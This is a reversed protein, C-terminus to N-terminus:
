ARGAYIDYRHFKCELPGNYLTYRRSTRLGIHKLAEKNASLIWAVHGAYNQKLTDGIRGYLAFIDTPKMREGYPPNMMVVGGDTSPERAEFSTHSLRILDDLGARAINERANQLAEASADSGVVPGDWNIIRERAAEVLPEWLHSDYGPWRQFGFDRRILGPAINRAYLAAEILITGSGCMPDTFATKRDWGSLLVIGAALAENLPAEGTDLRYGRRHLSDGSSDLSIVCRDGTVYLHIRVTPADVDVSPRKGTRDRFQDVIADKVRLASYKSHTFFKSNVVSDVALTGAPTLYQSWDVQRVQDYFVQDKRARFRHIPKLVRLATRLELNARYMLSTDGQFEVARRQKVVKEAGLGRLEGALVDELGTLTTATYQQKGM